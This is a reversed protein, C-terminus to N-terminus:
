IQPVTHKLFAALHRLSRCWNRCSASNPSVKEEIPREPSRGKQYHHPAPVNEFHTTKNASTAMYNRLSVHEGLHLLADVIILVLYLRDGRSSDEVNGAVGIM